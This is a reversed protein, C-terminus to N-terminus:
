LRRIARGLLGGIVVGVMNATMDDFGFSRQPVYLQACEFLVASAIVLTAMVLALRRNPVIALPVAMLTCHALAHFLKDLNLEIGAIATPPATDPSIYLFFLAVFAALWLASFWPWLSRGRDRWAIIRAVTKSKPAALVHQM